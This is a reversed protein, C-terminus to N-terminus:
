HLYLTAQFDWDAYSDNVGKLSESWFACDPDEDTMRIGMAAGDSQFVVIVEDGAHLRVPPNIRFTTQRMEGPIGDYVPFASAPLTATAAKVMEDGCSVYVEMRIEPAGDIWLSAEVRELSGEKSIRCRTGESDDEWLARMLPPPFQPSSGVTRYCRQDFCTESGFCAGCLGGCEHGQDSCDGPRTQMKVLAPCPGAGSSASQGAGGGSGGAGGAGTDPTEEAAGCAVLAVAVLLASPWFLDLRM